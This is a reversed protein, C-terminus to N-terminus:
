LCTMELYSVVVEVLTITLINDLSSPWFFAIYEYIWMLMDLPFVHRYLFCEMWGMKLSTVTILVFTPDSTSIFNVKKFFSSWNGLLYSVEKLSFTSSIHSFLKRKLYAFMIKSFQYSLYSVLKSVSPINEIISGVFHVICFVGFFYNMLFFMGFFYPLGLAM